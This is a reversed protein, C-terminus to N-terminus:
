DFPKVGLAKGEKSWPGSVLPWGKALPGMIQLLNSIEANGTVQVFLIGNAWPSIFHAKWFAHM